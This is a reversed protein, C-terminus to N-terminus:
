RTPRKRKGTTKLAGEAKAPPLHVAGSGGGASVIQNKEVAHKPFGRMPLRAGTKMSEDHRTSQGLRGTM